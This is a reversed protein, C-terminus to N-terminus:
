AHTYASTLADADCCSDENRVAWLIMDIKRPTWEDTDFLENLERAKRRMIDILLMADGETLCDSHSLMALLKSREPLSKVECLSKVVFQDATGFWKPFLNALLGSAGAPGLGRIAGAIELGTGIQAPNFTFLKRTISHLYDLKSENEYMRFLKTTSALRNSQTYKWPFYENLLFEYWERAGLKGVSKTGLAQMFEERERNEPKIREWYRKLADQWLKEDRSEWLDNIILL